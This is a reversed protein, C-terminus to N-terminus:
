VKYGHYDFPDINKKPKIPMQIDSLLNNYTTFIPNRYSYLVIKGQQSMRSMYADIQGDIKHQDVEDVLAKAGKKNMLMGHTGWFGSVKYFNDNVIESYLLRNYGFLIFDWDPPVNILAEQLRKFGNPEIIIDDELNFYYDNRHDSLLQKALSYHSLFCGIAGRTLQYHYNRYKKNEVQKLEVIADKTLWEHIDVNKGIVAPFRKYPIERIDSKKYNEIVQNMRDKNKDMNIIYTTINKKTVLTKGDNNSPFHYYFLYLIYFITFIAIINTVWIMIKYGDGFQLIQM